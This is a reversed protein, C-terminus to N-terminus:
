AEIDEVGQEQLDSEMKIFNPSKLKFIEETGRIRICVGEDIKCDPYSKNLYKQSLFGLLSEDFVVLEKVKGKFYEEVYNVGYKTCYDKVQEWSLEYAVGDTNTLTIRYVYIAYDQNYTYDDGQIGKGVIEAYISIGKEIKNELEISAREWIDMKYYSPNPTSWTNTLSKVGKPLKSKPKGSSWVIGYESKPINAGFFNLIKEKFGLRKNVLINSVILSSGHLKRTIIIESEQNFKNLNRAFHETDKHFRFQNDIIVDQIKFGLKKPAKGGPNSNRVPVVYKQCLNNGNIDTFSNGVNLSEISQQELFPNLSSLPMLFGDSIIGRLKIAKVRRTKGLYGPKANVDKNLDKDSYLNNLKCYYESLQTGSVFYLMVDGIKTDKSVVVNNGFIVARLINDSGEIPFLKDIQVVTCVYNKSDERITLKMKKTFYITDSINFTGISDTIWTRDTNLDMSLIPELFYCEMGKNGSTGIKTVVFTSRSTPYAAESFCSYLLCSFLLLMFIKM